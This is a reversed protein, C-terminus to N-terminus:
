DNGERGESHERGGLLTTDACVGAGMVPIPIVGLVTPHGACPHMRWLLRRAAHPPDIELLGAGERKGKNVTSRPLPIRPLESERDHM